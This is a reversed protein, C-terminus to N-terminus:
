WTTEYPNLSEDYEPTLTQMYYEITHRRWVGDADKMKIIPAFQFIMVLIWIVILVKIIFNRTGHDKDEPQIEQQENREELKNM